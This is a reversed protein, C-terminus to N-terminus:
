ASGPVAATAEAVLRSQLHDTRTPPSAAVNATAPVLLAALLVLLARLRIM